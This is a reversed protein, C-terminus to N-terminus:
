GAITRSCGSLTVKIPGDSELNVKADCGVRARRPDITFSAINKATIDLENAKPAKPVAGWAQAIRSWAGTTDRPGTGEEHELPNVAADGVGFGNAARPGPAQAVV